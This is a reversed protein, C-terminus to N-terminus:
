EIKKGEFIPIDERAPLTFYFTSGKNEESEVWVKGSHLAVIEKVITLGLGTGNPVGITPDHAQEFRQFILRLKEEPIGVGNDKVSVRLSKKDDGEPCVSIEITGGESTFKIANDLLNHLVQVIRTDDAFIVTDETQKNLTITIKKRDALVKTNDIAQYVLHMLNVNRKYVRLKGAELATIDLLDSILLQLHNGQRELIEMFHLIEEKKLEDYHNLILSASKTMSILPSKLDHSVNALFHSKLENVNQLVEMIRCIEQIFAKSRLSLVGVIRGDDLSVPLHRFDREAFLKFVELVPRSINVTEIPTTMIEGVKTTAPDRDMAIVKTLLDRETLIGVPFREVNYVILSGVGHQSMRKSVTTVTEEPYAGVVIPTVWEKIPIM